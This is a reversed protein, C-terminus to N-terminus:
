SVAELTASAWGVTRAIGDEFPTWDAFGTDARLRENTLVGHRTLPPLSPDTGDLVEVRVGPLVAAIADAIQRPARMQGSAVNYLAHNLRPAALLAAIARGIDAVFTWDRPPDDRYVRIAGTELAQALLRGVPSLRPRSPRPLEGPGYISSLRVVSADRQYDARLTEVLSETAAKAVAYLGLPTPPVTEDLPGPASAHFVASSSILIVRTDRKAAWELACLAPELNGRVHDEPSLGLEEPNATLAAAHVLATAPEDPLQAADGARLTLSDGYAAWVDALGLDFARDLALVRWGLALLAEVIHRGVFGGAGTVVVPQRNM